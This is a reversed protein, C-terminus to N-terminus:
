QQIAGTDSMYSQILQRARDLKQQRVQESDFANPVYSQGIRKAESEKINAGSLLYGLTTALAEAQNAYENGGTLDVLASVLPINSAVTGADPTMQALQELQQSAALAKSQNASLAKTEQKAQPNQLEYISYAQKYLDVLQGYATMDGAQMALDMARAIRDLQATSNNQDQTIANMANQANALATNYNNTAEEVAQAAQAQEARNNAFEAQDSAITRNAAKQAINGLTTGGIAINAATKDNLAATANNLKEGAKNAINGVKEGLNGAKEKIAGLKGTNQIPAEGNAQAQYNRYEEYKKKIAKQKAKDSGTLKEKAVVVADGVAKIPHGTVIDKVVKTESSKIGKDGQNQGYTNINYEEAQKFRNMKTSNAMAARLDQITNGNNVLETMRAAHEENGPLINKLQELNLYGKPNVGDTAKGLMSKSMYILGEGYAQDHINQNRVGRDYKKYGEKELAKGLDYIDNRSVTGDANPHLHKKAQAEYFSTIKGQAEKTAGASRFVDDWTFDFKTNIPDADELSRRIAKAIPSNQGTMKSAYLDIEARDTLGLKLMDEIADQLGEIRDNLRTTGYQQVVGGIAERKAKNAAIQAKQRQVETIYDLEPEAQVVPKNDATVVATPAKTIDSGGNQAVKTTPTEYQRAPITGETYRTTRDAVPVETPTAPAGQVAIKRTPYGENALAETIKRNAVPDLALGMAANDTTYTPTNNRVQAIEDYLAYMDNLDMNNQASGRNIEYQNFLNELRSDNGAPVQDSLHPQMYEPIDAATLNGGNKKLQGTVYNYYEQRNLTPLSNQNKIGYQEYQAYPNQMDAGDRAAQRLTEQLNKPLTDLLIEYGYEGGIKGDPNGMARVLTEDGYNKEGLYDALKENYSRPTAEPLNAKTRDVVSDIYKGRNQTTRNVPLDQAGADIVTEAIGRRTGPTVEAEIAKTTPAEVRNKQVIEAEIANTTPNAIRNKQVIQAEVPEAEIASAINAGNKRNQLTQAGKGILGMTGGMVGGGFAGGKAGQLSNKLADELSGGNAVTGVFGGSAGSAAGSAAGRVLNNNLLKKFAENSTKSAAKNMLGNTMSGAAGSIAGTAANAKAKNWDVDRNEAAAAKYEDGIGAVAGGLADTVPNDLFMLATDITNLAQGKAQNLNIGTVDGVNNRYTDRNVQQAQKTKENSGKIENWFDDGVKDSNIAETYSNFGYKKAIENRRNSDEKQIRDVESNAGIQNIGGLVTKGINGITAGADGIKEGVGKAIGVLTDILGGSKKNNAAQQAAQRQALQQAAKEAANRQNRANIKNYEDLSIQGYLGM